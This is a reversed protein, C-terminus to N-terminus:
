KHAHFLRSYIFKKKEYSTKTFDGSLLTNQRTDDKKLNTHQSYFGKKLSVLKLGTQNAKQKPVM